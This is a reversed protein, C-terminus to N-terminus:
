HDSPAEYRALKKADLILIGAQRLMAASEEGLGSESYFLFVTKRRLRGTLVEKVRIFRRVVDPTPQRQWDKVEVILDTGDDRESVAHLDAEVSSGQDVHFRAKRITTFRDVPLGELAGPAEQVVDDLTAGRLSAAFLRYRVKYEAAVGKHWATERRVEALERKFDDEIAQANVQEIEEGYIRRFVMAFVRDGLGRYRFNSSGDALIDAKVLKHLREELEQDTMDLKLDALIQDRGREEPEHAALYLVVKRANADNVRAFADWLYENWVRAIDGKGVMTELALADRVGDKTTLDKEEIRNRVISAIYFPDNDCVEAIYPATEDTIAVQYVTAYNYAAELAEEDSLGELRWEHYRGTMHRLIAGLWGIYSGAVIQPSFKSEAAGMYSHCLLEVNDVDDDSVIWRNLYQFEDLIQLIRVDNLQSIRHGAERAFLWSSGPSSELIDEMARIDSAVHRDSAALEKLEDLPLMTGVWEPTRTTFAFYQTLLRRYFTKAFETKTLREEPIRYYFPILRPDNENYLINFFRQLLATKGKKRRSLIGTSLSIRRKAGDAWKLLRAMEKKRGVFLDPDGIEEALAYTLDWM